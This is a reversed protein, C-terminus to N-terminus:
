GLLFGLLIAALGLLLILPVLVLRNLQYYVVRPESLRDRWAVGSPKYSHKYEQWIAASNAAVMLSGLVMVAGMGSLGVAPKYWFLICFLVFLDLFAWQAFRKPSTALATKRRKIQM